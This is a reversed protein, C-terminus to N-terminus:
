MVKHLAMDVCGNSTRNVIAPHGLDNIYFLIFGKTGDSQTGTTDFLRVLQSEPISAEQNVPTKNM